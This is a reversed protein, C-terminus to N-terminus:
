KLPSPRMKFLLLSPLHTKAFEAARIPTLRLFYTTAVIWHIFLIHRHCNFKKFFCSHYNRYTTSSQCWAILAKKRFIIADIVNWGLVFRNEKIRFKGLADSFSVLYASRDSWSRIKVTGLDSPVWESSSSTPKAESLLTVTEIIEIYRDTLIDYHRVAKPFDFRATLFRLRTNCSPGFPLFVV